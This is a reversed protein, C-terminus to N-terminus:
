YAYRFCDKRFFICNNIQYSKNLYKQKFFVLAIADMTARSLESTLHVLTKGDALSRFKESLNNVIQNFHGVFTILVHRHFGPNFIARRNKWREYNM